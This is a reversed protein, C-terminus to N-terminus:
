DRAKKSNAFREVAKDIQGSAAMLANLQKAVLLSEGLPM